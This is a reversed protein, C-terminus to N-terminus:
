RIASHDSKEAEELWQQFKNAIWENAESESKFGSVEQTRGNPWIAAVSIEKGVDSRRIQLVPKANIM